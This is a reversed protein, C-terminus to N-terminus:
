RNVDNEAPTEVTQVGVRQLSMGEPRQSHSPDEEHQGQIAHVLGLHLAVKAGASLLLGDHPNSHQLACGTHSRLKYRWVKKSEATM